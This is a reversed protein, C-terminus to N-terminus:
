LAIRGSRHNRQRRFRVNRDVFRLRQRAVNPAPPAGPIALPKKVSVVNHMPHLAHSTAHLCHFSSGDSPKPNVPIDYSLVVCRDPVVQRCTANTSCACSSERSAGGRQSIILSTHLCQVCAPHKSAHGVPAITHLSNPLTYM